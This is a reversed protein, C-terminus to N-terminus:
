QPVDQMSGALGDDEPTEIKFYYEADPNEARTEADAELYGAHASWQGDEHGKNYAAAIANRISENTLDVSGTFGGYTIVELANAENLPMYATRENEM